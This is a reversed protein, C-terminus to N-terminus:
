GIINGLQMAANLDTLDDIEVWPYQQTTVAAIDVDPLCADFANEYWAFAAGNEVMDRAKEYLKELVKKSLKSIGIFEGNSVACDMKKNIAQVRGDKVIVRMSEETLKIQTDVLVCNPHESDLILPILRKDYFTDSNILILDDGIQSTLLFSYINNMSNYHPNNIFNVGTDQFCRKIQDFKYGGIIYIDQYTFGADLLSQVQYVVLPKDNISIMAKPRHLTIPHLRSGTGAALIAVKM